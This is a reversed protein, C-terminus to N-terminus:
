NTMSTPVTGILQNHHIKLSELAHLQGFSFPIGGEDFKNNDLHLVKLTNSSCSPLSGNFNNYSLILEINTGSNTCLEDFVQGSLENNALNLERLLPGLSLQVIEPVSGTLNNNSMDLYFISELNSM